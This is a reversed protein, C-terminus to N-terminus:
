SDEKPTQLLEKLKSIRAQAQQISVNFLEIKALLDKIEKEFATRQESSLTGGGTQFRLDVDLSELWDAVRERSWGHQDNLNIIIDKIRSMAGTEPHKVQQMIGPLADIDAMDPGDDFSTNPAKMLGNFAEDLKKFAIAGDPDVHIHNSKLKPPTQYKKMVEMYDLAKVKQEYHLKHSPFMPHGDFSYNNSVVYDRCADYFRVDGINMSAQKAAIQVAAAKSTIGHLDYDSLHCKMYQVGGYMKDSYVFTVTLGPYGSDKFLEIDQVVFRQM